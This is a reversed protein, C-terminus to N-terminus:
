RARRVARSALVGFGGALAVLWGAALAVQGGSPGAGSCARMLEVVASVPSVRVIPELWDAFADAPVLASSVILLPLYPLSLAATATEPTPARLGITIAGACMCLGFAVAVLVFAIALVPGSGFRFGVITGAVVVVVVSVLARVADSALRALPLAASRIPLTRLRDFLGSRRDRAFAFAPGFATFMMAQVVVGPVLFQVGDLGRDDLLRDFVALFAVLFVLPFVISDMTAQPTRALRLNRGALVALEHGLAPQSSSRANM